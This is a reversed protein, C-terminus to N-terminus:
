RIDTRGEELTHPEGDEPRLEERQERDARCEHAEGHQSEAFREVSVSGRIASSGGKFLDRRRLAGDGDGPIYNRANEARPVRSM